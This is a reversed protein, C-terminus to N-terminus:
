NKEARPRCSIMVAARALFYVVGLTAILEGHAPLRGVNWMYCIYVCPILALAADIFFIDRLIFSLVVTAALFSASILYPTLDDCGLVNYVLTREFYSMEPTTQAPANIGLAYIYVCLATCVLACLSAAISARRGGGDCDRRICEALAGVSHLVALVIYLMPREYIRGEKFMFIVHTLPVLSIAFGVFPYKNFILSVAGSLLFLFILPIFLSYDRVNDGELFLKLKEIMSVEDKPSYDMFECLAYMFASFAAFLAGIDTFKKFLSM